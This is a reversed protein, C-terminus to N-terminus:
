LKRGLLLIGATGLLLALAWLGSDSVAPINNPPSTPTRTLTPTATPTDTPTPTPTPTLTPPTTPTPTPTYTPTGTPTLTPTNTPTPTLTPTGTPTFTPTVTPTNTPTPTLTPTATPTITPTSTPTPTPALQLNFTGSGAALFTNLFSGNVSLTPTVSSFSLALGRVLAGTFDFFDSTFEVTFGASTAGQLSANTSDQAGQVMGTYTITLLNTRTGNGEAAASDRTIAITNLIINFPQALNPGVIVPTTTTSSMTLHATQFGTLDPPTVLNSYLFFVPIGINPLDPNTSNFTANVPTNNTFQFHQGADVEFFQAFTFTQAHAIPAMSAMGAVFLALFVIRSRLSGVHCLAVPACVRVPETRAKSLIMM